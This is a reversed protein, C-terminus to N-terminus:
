LNNAFLAMIGACVVLAASSSLGAAIPLNGTILVRLGVLEQV